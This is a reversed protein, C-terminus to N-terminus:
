PKWARITETSQLASLGQEIPQDRCFRTHAEPVPFGCAVRACLAASYHTQPGSRGM